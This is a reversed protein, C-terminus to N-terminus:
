EEPEKMEPVYIFFFFFTFQQLYVALSCSPLSHVLAAVIELQTNHKKELSRM